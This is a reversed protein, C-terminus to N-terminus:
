SRMRLSDTLLRLWTFPLRITRSQEAIARTIAQRIWWTAYTSFKYGRRYDFKEVAKLLGLNGEQILDSFPTNFSMYHKAISVVLRLNAIALERAAEEGDRRTAEDADPANGAEIRKALAVEEEATLLPIRGIERLYVRVPDNM